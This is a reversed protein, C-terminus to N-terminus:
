VGCKPFSALFNRSAISYRNTNAFVDGLLSEIQFAIRLSFNQDIM